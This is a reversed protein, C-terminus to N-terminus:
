GTQAFVECKQLVSLGEEEFYKKQFIGAICFPKHDVSMGFKDLVNKYHTIKTKPGM